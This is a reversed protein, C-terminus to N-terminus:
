DVYMNNSCYQTLLVYSFVEIKLLIGNIEKNHNAVSTHSVKTVLLYDNPYERKTVTNKLTIELENYFPRVVEEGGSGDTSTYM